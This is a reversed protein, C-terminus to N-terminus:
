LIFVMIVFANRKFESLIFNDMFKQYSLLLKFCIPGCSLVLVLLCVCKTYLSFYELMVTSTHSM